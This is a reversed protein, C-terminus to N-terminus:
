LVYLIVDTGDVGHPRLYFKRDPLLRKIYLPIRWLDTAHHYVSIAMKPKNKVIFNEAANLTAWEAGEIDFKLYLNCDNQLFYDIPEVDIVIDGSDSFSASMDGTSNFRLPASKGGVGMNFCSFRERDALSKELELVLKLYNTPDPEIAIIKKFNNGAYRIFNSSTDGTYAGADFFVVDNSLNLDIDEPFYIDHLRPLELFSFDLTSRWRLQANFCENSINDDWLHVCEEIDKQCQRIMFPSGINAIDALMEPYLWSLVMMSVVNFGYHELKKEAEIFPLNPNLITVVITVKRGFKKFAMASTYIPIGNLFTGQKAPTDDIFARPKVGRNVLRELVITGMTGAGYLIINKIDPILRTTTDVLDEETYGDLYSFIEELSSNNQIVNENKM